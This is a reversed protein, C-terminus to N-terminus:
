CVIADDIVDSNACQSIPTMCYLFYLNQDIKEWKMSYSVSWYNLFKLCKIAGQLIALDQM